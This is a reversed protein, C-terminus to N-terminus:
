ATVELTSRAVVHAVFALLLAAALLVDFGEHVRVRPEAFAVAELSDIESWVAALSAADNATFFRGRTTRALQQVATTDLPVVRGDPKRNGRGLVITHVRIGLGACLQAAHLPAIEGPSVATAVNEEGDTLLVVVKGKSSSRELVAAAAAVAAGIGTADEPGDKGVMAVSGLLDALAAHDLTPPCRLDAYRAFEVFGVRDDRRSEVFATATEVGVMLRTRGPALDDAAMSSSRDICLLVDRGLREPPLPEQLVPRALAAIAVVLAALHLATPLFAARVRWTTPLAPPRPDRVLTAAAFRVGTRSRMRWVVLLPLLALLLFWAPDRWQWGDEIAAIM